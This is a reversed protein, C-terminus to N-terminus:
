QKTEQHVKIQISSLGRNVSLNVSRTSKAGTGFALDTGADKVDFICLERERVVLSNRTKSYVM